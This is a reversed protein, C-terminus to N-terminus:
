KGTIENIVDLWQKGIIDIDLRNKIEAANKGLLNRKAPSNLLDDVAKALSDVNSVPVLIGNVGNEILDAPGGCPCDTSVCALGLAMAEILANPMGEFDSSMIFLSADNICKLLDSRLGMLKVKSQLGKTDILKQINEKEPGDGFIELRYQSHIKSVIEFASILMPYNKEKILRGVAVIKEDREQTYPTTFEEAVIPNAIVTSRRQIKESFFGKADTTQFVFYDAMNMLKRSLVRTSSKINANQPSSRESVIFPIGLGALAPVAYVCMPTGMVIVASPGEKKINERLSLVLQLRGKDTVCQYRKISDPVSYENQPANKTTFISIDHGCKEFWSALRVAVREAGGYGISGIIIGIKM